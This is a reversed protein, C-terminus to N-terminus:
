PAGKLELLVADCATTWPTSVNQRHLLDLGKATFTGPSAITRGMAALEVDPNHKASALCDQM